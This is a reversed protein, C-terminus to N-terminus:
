KEPHLHRRIRAPAEEDSERHWLWNWGWGGVGIGSKAGLVYMFIAPPLTMALGILLYALIHLM